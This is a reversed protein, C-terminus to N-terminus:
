WSSPQNPIFELKVHTDFIQLILQRHDEKSLQVNVAQVNSKPHEKEQHLMARQSSNFMSLKSCDRCKWAQKHELVHKKAAVFTNLNKPCVPCCFHIGM